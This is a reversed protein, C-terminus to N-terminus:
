SRATKKREAIKIDKIFDSGFDKKDDSVWYVLDGSVKVVKAKKNTSTIIESNVSLKTSAGKESYPKADYGFERLRDGVLKQAEGVSIPPLSILEKTIAEAVDDSVELNYTKKIYQKLQKVDDPTTNAEKRMSLKPATPLVSAEQDESKKVDKEPPFINFENKKPVLPKKQFDVLDREYESHDKNKEVM